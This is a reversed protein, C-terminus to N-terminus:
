TRGLRPLNELLGVLDDPGKGLHMAHEAFHAAGLRSGIGGWHVHNLRGDLQLILLSPGLHADPIGVALGSGM